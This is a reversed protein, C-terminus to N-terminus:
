GLRSKSLLSFNEDHYGSPIAQIVPKNTPHNPVPLQHAIARLDISAKRGVAARQQRRRVNELVVEHYKKKLRKM